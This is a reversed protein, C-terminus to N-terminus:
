LAREGRCSATATRTPAPRATPASRAGAPRHDRRGGRRDPPRQPPQLRDRHLRPRRRQHPHGPLRAGVALHAHEAGVELVPLRPRSRTSEVREPDSTLTMSGMGSSVNVVVPNAARELLPRFPRSSASPASSTPRTSRACTTPPPRPCRSQPAGAIGANNILVDLAGVTEVAAARVRRRDRRTAVLQAGLTTPPPAAASAPRPRRDVRRPRRRDARTATEYGLSRNGGTILTTTM